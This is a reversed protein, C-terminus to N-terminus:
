ETRFESILTSYFKAEYIRLSHYMCWLHVTKNTM